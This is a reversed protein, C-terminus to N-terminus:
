PQTEEVFHDRYIRLMIPAPKNTAFKGTLEELQTLLRLVHTDLVDEMLLVAQSTHLSECLQKMEVEQKELESKFVKVSEREKRSPEWRHSLVRITLDEAPTRSAPNSGVSL